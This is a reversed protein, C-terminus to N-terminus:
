FQRRLGVRFGGRRYADGQEHFIVDWSLGWVPSLWHLGTLVASLTEGKVFLGNGVSEVEEGFALLFGIRSSHGYYRDFRFQNAFTPDADELKSWYVTWGAYYNKWYYDGTLTLMRVHNAAYEAHRIGVQMSFGYELPRQLQGAVTWKPLVVAGPALSADASATWAEGVPWYIGGSIEHDTQDFRDTQRLQGYVSKRPGLRRGGHVYLSSWDPLDNSLQQVSFGGEVHNSLRSQQAPTRTVTISSQSRFGPWASDAFRERADRRLDELEGYRATDDIAELAQVELRWVAEYHPASERARALLPLADVPHGSWVLVQSKGLLYDANDPGAFLLADYQELSATWRQEWALVRAYLFRAERDGPESALHRDLKAMAADRDGADLDAQVSVVADDGAAIATASLLLPFLWAGRRNCIRGIM